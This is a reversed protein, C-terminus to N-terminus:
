GVEECINMEKICSHNLVCYQIQCVVLPFKDKMIKDTFWFKRNEDFAGIIMDTKQKKIMIKIALSIFNDRMSGDSKRPSMNKAIGCLKKFNELDSRSSVLNISNEPNLLVEIVSYSVFKKVDKCWWRSDEIDDFFYSGKGLWEDEKKSQMIKKTSVINRASNKDTGHYGVYSKSIM